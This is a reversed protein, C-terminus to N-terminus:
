AVGTSSEVLGSVQRTYVSGDLTSEQLYLMTRQEALLESRETHLAAQQAEALEICQEKAVIKECQEAHLTEQQAEASTLSQVESSCQADVAQEM